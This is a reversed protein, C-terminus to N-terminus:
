GRRLWWIGVFIAALFFCGVFILHGYSDKIDVEAALLNLVTSIM